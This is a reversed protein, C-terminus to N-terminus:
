AHQAAVVRIRRRCALPSRHSCPRVLAATRSPALACTNSAMRHQEVTCVKKKVAASSPQHTIVLDNFLATDGGASGTVLPRVHGRLGDPIANGTARHILKAHVELLLEPPPSPFIAIEPAPQVRKRWVQEPRSESLPVLSLLLSDLVLLQGGEFPLPAGVVCASGIREIAGGAGHDVAHAMGGLSYAYGSDCFPSGAPMGGSCLHSTLLQRMAECDHSLSEPLANMARDSPALVTLKTLSPGNLAPLEAFLGAASLEAVLRGCGVENACDQFSPLEADSAAGTEHGPAARVMGNAETVLSTVTGLFDSSLATESLSDIEGEGSMLVDTIQELAHAQDAYPMSTFGDGATDEDMLQATIDELESMSIPDASM